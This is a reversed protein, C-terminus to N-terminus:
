DEASRTPTPTKGPPALKSRNSSVPLAWRTMRKRRLSGTRIRGRCADNKHSHLFLGCGKAYAKVAKACRTVTMERVAMRRALRSPRQDLVQWVNQRAVTFRDIQIRQRRGRLPRRCARGGLPRCYALGCRPRSLDKGKSFCTTTEKRTTQQLRPQNQIFKAPPVPELSHTQVQLSLVRASAQAVLTAVCHPSVFPSIKSLSRFTSIIPKLDKQSRVTTVNLPVPVVQMTPGFPHPLDLTTSAMEQTSPSCLWLDKRASRMASQMKLPVILRGGIPRASTVIVSSSASSASAARNTKSPAAAAESAAFASAGKSVSWGIASAEAGVVSIKGNSRAAAVSVGCASVSGVSSMGSTAASITGSDSNRFPLRRFFFVSFSTSAVLGPSTTTLRRNYREPCLSYKILPLTPRNASM